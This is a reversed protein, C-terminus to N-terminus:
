EMELSLIDRTLTWLGGCSSALLRFNLKPESLVFLVVLMVNCNFEIMSYLVVDVGLVGLM